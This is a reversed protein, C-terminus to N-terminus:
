TRIFLGLHPNLKPSYDISRFKLANDVRFGSPIVCGLFLGRQVCQNIYRRIPCLGSDTMSQIEPLDHFVFISGPKTIKWLALREQETHEPSHDSDVFVLDFIRGHLQTLIEPTRGKVFEFCQKIESCEFFAFDHVPNCEIATVKGSPWVARIMHLTTFGTYMGVELVNKSETLRILAEIFEAEAPYAIFKWILVEQIKAAIKEYVSKDRGYHFAKVVDNLAADDAPRNFTYTDEPYRKILEHTPRM